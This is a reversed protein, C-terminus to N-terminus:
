LDKRFHIAREVEEFSCSTHWKESVVNDLLCDSAMERFGGARGWKEIEQLIFSVVGGQRYGPEVWIAELYLVHDSRCGEAYNRIGTEAFGIIRGDAGELMWGRYDEGAIIGPLEDRLEQPGSSDHLACRMQHWIDIDRTEAPRLEM